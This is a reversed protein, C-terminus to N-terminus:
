PLEPDRGDAIAAIAAQFDATTNRHPFPEGPETVGLFACLPAWGEAPDFVLLRNAPVEARVAANHARYAALCAAEDDGQGGFVRANIVDAVMESWGPPTGPAPRTLHGQITGAFSRYWDAEPRESHIVKAEPCAAVLERWFAAGPWDVSAGFGEFIADWGTSGSGPAAHWLPIHDPHAFVETMHYCPGFVLTELATKLSTTGTRGFGTGIVKLTMM